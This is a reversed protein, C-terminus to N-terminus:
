APVSPKREKRVRWQLRRVLLKTSVFALHLNNRGSVGDNDQAQYERLTDTLSDEWADLDALVRGLRKSVDGKNVSGHRGHV